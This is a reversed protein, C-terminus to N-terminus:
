EHGGRQRLLDAVDKHRFQAALHLPTYRYNDMANVQAKNALLVEALDKHGMMAAYHLPTDGYNDKAIVQAQNALLVEALDKLGTIAAYHLPTYGGKDSFTHTDGPIVEVIRHDNDNDRRYAELWAVFDKQGHVYAYEWAVSSLKNRANVEAHNALLLELVGKYEGIGAGRLGFGGNAAYHLPTDGTSPIRANVAAKNALLLAVVDKHGRHAALHLPTGSSFDRANVNAQYALLLAVVDSHGYFSADFLPTRHSNDKANVNAKNALLVEAVDKFGFHAACHLPSVGHVEKANVDAKYALLLEAVDRHGYFSADFLPTKGGTTRRDVEAKNALLLAVVDKHGKSAAMHLPAGDPYITGYVMANVDAKSALLLAVVDKFGADAAYHLPTRGSFPMGSAEIKDALGRQKEPYPTWPAYIRLMKAAQLSPMGSNDISFVLNPNAKLLAKVKALDGSKAAEHIEGCFALSSWALVILTIAALRAIPSHCLRCFFSRTNMTEIEHNAEAFDSTERKVRPM